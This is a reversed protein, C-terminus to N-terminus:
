SGGVGRFPFDIQINNSLITDQGLLLHLSSNGRRWENYTQTQTTNIGSTSTIPSGAQMVQCPFVRMGAFIWVVGLTDMGSVMEEVQGTSVDLINNSLIAELRCTYLGRYMQQPVPASSGAMRPCGPGPSLSLFRRPDCILPALRDICTFM